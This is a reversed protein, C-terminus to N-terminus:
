VTPTNTWALKPPRRSNTSAPTASPSASASSLGIPSNRRAGGPAPETMASTAVSAGSNGCWHWASARRTVAPRARVPVLPDWKEPSRNRAKEVALGPAKRGPARPSDRSDKTGHSLRSGNKSATTCAVSSATTLASTAFWSM